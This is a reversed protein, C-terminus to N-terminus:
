GAEQGQKSPRDRTIAPEDRRRKLELSDLWITVPGNNVLEVQMSAQFKGTAVPVPGKRAQQVFYDYLAEAENPPAAPDFSPRRGRRCDAYLTFQSIILLEGGAEQVNRNMKGDADSFLRLGLLKDVLYDADDTTDGRAVGVFVV